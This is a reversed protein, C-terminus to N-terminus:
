KGWKPKPLFTKIPTCIGLFRITDVPCKNRSSENMHLRKKIWDPKRLSPWVEMISRKERCDECPVLPSLEGSHVPFEDEYEPPINMLFEKMEQFDNAACLTWCAVAVLILKYAMRRQFNRYNHSVQAREISIFPIPVDDVGTLSRQPQLSTSHLSWM